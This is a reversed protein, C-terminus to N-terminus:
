VQINILSMLNSMTTNMKAQKVIPNLLVPNTTIPVDPDGPTIYLYDSTNAETVDYSPNNQITVNTNLKCSTTYNFVKSDVPSTGEKKCRVCLIVIFLVLTIVLLLIVGGM